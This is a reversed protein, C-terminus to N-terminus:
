SIICSIPLRARAAERAITLLRHHEKEAEEAVTRADSDHTSLLARETIGADAAGAYLNRLLETKGSGSGIQHGLLAGAAGGAIMGLPGGEGSKETVSVEM